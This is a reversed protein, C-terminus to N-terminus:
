LLTIFGHAKGAVYSRGEAQPFREQADQNLRTNHEEIKFFDVYNSIAARAQLGLVRPFPQITM